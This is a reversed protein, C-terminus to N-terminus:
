NKRAAAARRANEAEDRTLLTALMLTVAFVSALGIAFGIFLVGADM